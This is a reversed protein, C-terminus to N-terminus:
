HGALVSGDWGITPANHMQHIVITILAGSEFDIPEKTTLTAWHTM